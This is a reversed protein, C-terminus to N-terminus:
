TGQRIINAVPTYTVVAVENVALTTDTTILSSSTDFAGPGQTAVAHVHEILVYGQGDAIIREGGVALTSFFADLDAKMRAEAATKTVNSERAILTTINGFNLAKSTAAAVTCSGGPPVALLQIATNCIYVDTGDTSTDGTAPGSASALYVQMVGNGPEVLRVRTVNVTKPWTSPIPIGARKMAGIPDRAVAEVLARPSLGREAAALQCRRKLLPDPEDDSGLLAANDQVYLGGFPAATPPTPYKPLAGTSTNSASGAEDARMTFIATPYPGSGSWLAMFAANTNTFSKGAANKHRLTGAAITGVNVSRNEFIVDGEAFTAEGRPRNYRTWAEYSLWSGSAYRLYRARMAPLIWANAMNCFWTTVSDTLDYAIDGPEWATSDFGALALLALVDTLAQDPDRDALQEEITPM